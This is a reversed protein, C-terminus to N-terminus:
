DGWGGLFFLGFPLKGAPNELTVDQLDSLHGALVLGTLMRPPPLPPAQLKPEALALFLFSSTAQLYAGGASSASTFVSSVQLLSVSSTVVIPEPCGQVQVQGKM